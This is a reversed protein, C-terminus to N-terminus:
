APCVLTKGMALDPPVNPNHCLAKLICDVCLYGQNALSNLGPCPCRNEINGRAYTHDEQQIKAIEQNRERSGFSVISKLFSFTTAHVM